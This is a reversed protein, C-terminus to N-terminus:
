LFASILERAAALEHAPVFIRAMPGRPNKGYTDPVVSPHLGVERLKTACLESTALLLWGAEVPSDSPDTEDPRGGGLISWVRSRLGM